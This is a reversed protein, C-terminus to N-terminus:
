RTSTAAATSTTRAVRRRRARDAGAAADRAAEDAHVSAVGGRPQARAMRRQDDASARAVDNRAASTSTSARRAAPRAATRSTSRASSPTRPSSCAAPRSSIAPRSTPASSGPTAPRSRAAPTSAAASSRCRQRDPPLLRGAGFGLYSGALQGDRLGSLNFLGGLLFPNVLSPDDRNLAGARAAVNLFSDQTLPIGANVGLDGRALRNSVEETGSGLRQTRQGYFVDLNARVGHRPFFANDLNDWRALLARAPTPRARPRSARSPRDDAHRPLVHVRPGVRMEGANRFPIGLDIGVSNTQVAYEAVRQSGNFVYRPSTRSARRLASAFATRDIDLPQYFETAARVIRGLEIENLWEAGLSDVWVRRHGMLLAFTSEGQFDTAYFLASACTTRGWRSRAARRRRAGAAQRRRGARYDIREYEGRATCARSASRRAEAHRAARRHPVALKAELVKPNAYQTGEIRVFDIVPPPTDALRPRAAKYARYAAESLALAALQPSAARAAAEGKAIFTAGQNFDIASLAGLDPSILM